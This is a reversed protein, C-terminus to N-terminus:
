RAKYYCREIKDVIKEWDYDTAMRRANRGFEERLSNNSLMTFLARELEREGSVTIGVRSLDEIYDGSNTTVIPKGCSMAELFTLPFGYFIPTVFIDADVYASIKDDHSLFGTFIVKDVIKLSIALRKLAECYDDDPGAIILKVRDIRKSLGKFSKILIDLGKSRHIRGLYLVIMCDSTIGYKEKFTNGPPISNYDSIDIGNPIIEIKSNDVKPKYQEAESQNLVFLKSSNRLIRNGIVIDFIHKLNPAIEDKCLPPKGHPQLFYPINFRRSFYHVIINQFTRFDHAHIIDFEGKKFRGLMSPSLFIKYDYALSNSVNRFYYVEIGDIFRARPHIRSKRDNADTTYITVNHGRQSLIKSIKHAVISAGGYAISPKYAPIVQLIRM